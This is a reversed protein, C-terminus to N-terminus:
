ITEMFLVVIIAVAAIVASTLLYNALHDNFTKM